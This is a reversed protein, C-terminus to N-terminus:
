SDDVCQLIPAIGEMSTRRGASSINYSVKRLCRRQPLNPPVGPVRQTHTSPGGVVREHTMGFKVFARKQRQSAICTSDSRRDGPMGPTTRLTEPGYLPGSVSRVVLYHPPQAPTPIRQLANRRWRLWWT